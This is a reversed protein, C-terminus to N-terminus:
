ISHITKAALFVLSASKVTKGTIASIADRYSALQPEYFKAREAVGGASVRDTKYDAIAIGDRSPIMVDVRGRIMIRDLSEPGNSDLPFYIPAERRLVQHNERLLKGLPTSVFWAIAELQVTQAVAAALLKKRVIEDLQAQLDDRDCARSFDLHQLLLHTASGVEMAAPTIEEQVCRPSKLDAQMPSRGSWREVKTLSGVSQTAPLKTLADFPYKKTLRDEVLKAQPHMKPEPMLPELRALRLQIDSFGTGRRMATWNAMEDESHRTIEIRDQAEAMTAAAPGIWDL